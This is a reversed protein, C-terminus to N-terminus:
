ADLIFASSTATYKSSLNAVSSSSPVISANGQVEVGTSSLGNSSSTMQGISSVNMKSSSTTITNSSSASLNIIACNNLNLNEGQFGGVVCQAVFTANSTPVHEATTQSAWNWIIMGGGVQFECGSSGNIGACAVYNGSSDQEINAVTGSIYFEDGTFAGNASAANQFYAKFILEAPIISTDFVSFSISRSSLANDPDGQYFVSLSGPSTTSPNYTVSCEGASLICFNSSFAGPSTSNWEINGTPSYGEVAANCSNLEGLVM